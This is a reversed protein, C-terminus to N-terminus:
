LDIYTDEYHCCVLSHIYHSRIYDDRKKVKQLKRIKLLSM